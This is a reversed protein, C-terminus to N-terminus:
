RTAREKKGFLMIFLLVALAAVLSITVARPLTNM